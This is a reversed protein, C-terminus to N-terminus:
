SQIDYNRSYVLGTSRCRGFLMLRDITQSAYSDFKGLGGGDEVPQYLAMVGRGQSQETNIAHLAQRIQVM